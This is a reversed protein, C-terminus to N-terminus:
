HYLPQELLAPDPKLMPMMRLPQGNSNVFQLGELLVKANELRNKDYQRIYNDLFEEQVKEELEANVREGNRSVEADRFVKIWTKKM